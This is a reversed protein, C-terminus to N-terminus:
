ARYSREPGEMFSKPVNTRVEQPIDNPNQSPNLSNTFHKPYNDYQCHKITWDMFMFYMEM